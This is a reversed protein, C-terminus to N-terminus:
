TQYVFEAAFRVSIAGTRLAALTAPLVEVLQRAHDIRTQAAGRGWRMAAALEDRAPERGSPDAPGVFSAVAQHTWAAVSAGLREWAEVVYLKDDASLSALDLAALGAYVEPGPEAAALARPSLAEAVGQTSCM